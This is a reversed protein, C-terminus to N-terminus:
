VHKCKEEHFITFVLGHRYCHAEGGIGDNSPPCMGEGYEEERGKEERPHMSGCIVREERRCCPSCSLACLGFSHMVSYM